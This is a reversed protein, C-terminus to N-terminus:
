GQKKSYEQIAKHIQERSYPSKKELENIVKRANQNVLGLEYGDVPMPEGSRPSIGTCVHRDFSDCDSHYAEAILRLEREDETEEEEVMWDGYMLRRRETQSYKAPDKYGTYKLEEEADKALEKLYEWPIQHEQNNDM